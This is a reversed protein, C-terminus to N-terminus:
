TRLSNEPRRAAAANKGTLQLDAVPKVPFLLYALLSRPCHRCTM